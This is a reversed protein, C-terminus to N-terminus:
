SMMSEPDSKPILAHNIFGMAKLLRTWTRQGTMPERCLAMSHKEFNGSMITEGKRLDRQNSWIYRLLVTV